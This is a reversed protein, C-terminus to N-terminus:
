FEFTIGTTALPQTTFSYDLNIVLFALKVAAGFTARFSNDGELSVSVEQDQQLAPDGSNPDGEITYDLDFKTSEIQLGVYPSLIGFSKSAHINFATNKIKMLDTIELNSYLFQASVDIPLLPIYQSINHKLGLGFLSLDREAIPIKPLYRLIVETGMFSAAIQPYGAPVGTLDVGPPTVIYGNPGAYANGKNGYVTATQENASYGDPLVPTFKTQDEPIFIYMGEFTLSFSFGSSVKASHYGGSNLSLGLSTAFPKAFGKVNESTLAAFRDDLQSFTTSCFLFTLALFTLTKKM